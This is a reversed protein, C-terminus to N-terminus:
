TISSAKCFSESNMVMVDCSWIARLGVLNKTFLASNVGFPDAGLELVGWELLVVQSWDGFLATGAPVSGTSLARYGGIVNGDMIYGSGASRERGRLIKASAPDVAWGAAEPAVLGKATEVTALMNLIGTWAISAGAESGIGPVNLIGTPQGSFETGSIVAVDYAEAVARALETIIFAQAAPSSAKLLKGSVEGYGGVHKPTGVAAAFAPTSEGIQSSETALWGTTFSGTARPVYANDMMPIRRVGFRNTVSANRLAAVFLDGPNTSAVLYGGAGAVNATLDRQALADRSIPVFAYGPRPERHLRAAIIESAEWERPALRQVSNAALGDLLREISYPGAKRALRDQEDDIDQMRHLEKVYLQHHLEALKRMTASLDLPNERM